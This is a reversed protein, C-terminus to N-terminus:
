GRVGPRSTGEGFAIHMRRTGRPRLTADQDTEAGKSTFPTYRRGRHGAKRHGLALVLGKFPDPLLAGVTADVGEIPALM